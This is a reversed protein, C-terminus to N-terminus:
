PNEPSEQLGLPRGVSSAIALAEEFESILIQESVQSLKEQTEQDARPMMEEILRDALGVNKKRLADMLRRLDNTEIPVKTQSPDEAQRQSQRRNKLAQSIQRQIKRIAGSLSDLPEQAFAAPEGKRGREELKAAMNSLTEAGINASATKLAHVAIILNERDKERDNGSPVKLSRSLEEVDRVFVALIECYKELDGGSRRIGLDLDVDGEVLDPWVSKLVSADGGTSSRKPLRSAEETLRKDEPIWKQLIDNLHQSEVPKSLYDDFGSALLMERVGIVANATFAIAASKQNHPSRRIAKITEVGDLGPMMHDIFLLDFKQAKAKEIAEAGSLATTLEMNFPSMLGVVVMINTKIDDVILAKIDPAQFNAQRVAAATAFAEESIGGFPAPDAVMQPIVATFKSGRGLESEVTIHGNMLKCLSQTISLGLGTGEVYRTEHSNQLRVFDSFLSSLDEQAIGVGTDEVIFRLEVQEQAIVDGQVTLKIQGESTYKVANSLLNTLIQELSRKDGIMSRPVNPDFDTLFHLPKNRLRQHTLEVVDALLKDTRYPALTIRLKGSEIKSFDLIDNVIGLLTSGAKRIEKVYELGELKGHDREALESLGIIANLPTRIEHSMRALFSSKSRNEEESRTKALSLRILVISLVAAMILSIILIVPFLGIVESYYFSIPAINGLHWGNELQSFFGIHAKGDLEFREIVVDDLDRLKEELNELGPIRSIPIGIYRKDPFTLVNLRADALLGFGSSALKFNSVQSIIPELLYDIGIVGRSEGKNDFVVMSIAAVSKGTRTDLYPETHYIGDTLLAGRLWAATKVNFLSGPIFGSGDVFNGDLYGYVSVFIKEMDPQSSFLATLERLIELQEAPPANRSLALSIMKASHLMADENAQILSRLFNRYITVEARSYLVLQKKAVSSVYYYSVMTMILFTGLVLLILKLNKRILSLYKM